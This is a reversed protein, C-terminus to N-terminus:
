GVFRGLEDWRSIRQLGSGDGAQGSIAKRGNSLDSPQPDAGVICHGGFDRNEGTWTDALAPKQFLRRRDRFMISGDPLSLSILEFLLPPEQGNGQSVAPPRGHGDIM